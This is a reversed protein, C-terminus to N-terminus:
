NLRVPVIMHGFRFNLHKNMLYSIHFQELAVEGGKEIETEYEGNEEYWEVERAAGTGGYEFEIESSLVWKPSFKYDPFLFINKQHYLFIHCDSFATQM